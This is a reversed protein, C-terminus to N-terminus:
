CRWERTAHPVKCLDIEKIEVEDNGYGKEALGLHAVGAWQSGVYSYLTLQQFILEDVETFAGFNLPRVKQTSDM